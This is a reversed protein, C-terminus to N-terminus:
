ICGLNGHKYRRLLLISKLSIAGHAIYSAFNKVSDRYAILKFLIKSNRLIKFFRNVLDHFYNKVLDNRVVQGTITEVGSM